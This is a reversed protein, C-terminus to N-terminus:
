LLTPCLKAVLFCCCCRLGLSGLRGRGKGRTVMLEYLLVKRLCFKKRAVTLSECLNLKRMYIQSHKCKMKNLQKIAFFISLLM